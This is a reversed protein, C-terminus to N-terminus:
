LGVRYRLARVTHCWVLGAPELGVRPDYPTGGAAEIRDLIDDARAMLLRLPRAPAARLEPDLRAETVAERAMALVPRLAPATDSSKPSDSIKSYTLGYEEFLSQPLPKRGRAVLHPFSRLLGVLAWATGTRRAAHPGAGLVGAMAAHVIGGTAEAYARVASLDAPGDPDLDQERADILRYFPQLDLGRDRALVALPQIVEHARPEGAAIGDLGERWWQLRIQGLMPESVVEATKAIEHNAALLVFLAPQQDAPAFLSVLYRERDYQAAIRRCNDWFDPTAGM